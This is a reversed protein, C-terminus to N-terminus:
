VSCGRVNPVVMCFRTVMVVQGVPNTCGQYIFIDM